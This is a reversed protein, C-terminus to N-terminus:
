SSTVCSPCRKCRNHPACCGADVPQFDTAGLVGLIRLARQEDATLLIYAADFTDIGSDTGELRVRAARVLELILDLSWNPRNAVATGIARLALPQRGCRYVLTRSSDEEDDVRESGINTRLMNLADPLALPALPIPKTFSVGHWAPRDRCTVILACKPNIPRVINIDFDSPVDDLVCLVSRNATLDEYKERLGKTDHPLAERPGKLATM